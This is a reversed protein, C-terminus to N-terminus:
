DIELPFTYSLSFVDFNDVCDISVNKDDKYCIDFAVYLIEANDNGRSEEEINVCQPYTGFTKVMESELWKIDEPKGIAVEFIDTYGKSLYEGKRREFNDTKGICFNRIIEVDDSEEKLKEKLIKSIITLAEERKM